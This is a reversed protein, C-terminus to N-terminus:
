PVTETVDPRIQVGLTQSEGSETDVVTIQHAGPTLGIRDMQRGRIDLAHGEAAKVFGFRVKETVEDDAVKVTVEARAYPYTGRISLKHTGSPVPCEVMPLEVRACAKVGAVSAYGRVNSEVTLAGGPQLTVEVPLQRKGPPVELEVTAPQFGPKKLTFRYSKGSEVVHEDVPTTRGALLEDNQYIQAGPPESVIRVSGVDASMALSTAVQAEGGPGPVRVSRVQDRYGPKRFTLELQEGPPLETLRLPTVGLERDGLYIRAGLPDSELYVVSEKPVLTLAVRATTGELPEILENAPNWGEKRAVIRYANGVELGDVQLTGGETAGRVKGDIEITAGDPATTILVPATPTASLRPYAVLGILALLLVISGVLGYVVARPAAGPSERREVPHKAGSPVLKSTGAALRGSADIREQFFGFRKLQVKPATLDFTVLCETAVGPLVNFAFLTTTNAIIYLGLGAGGTKRDIQQESHLCKHLYRVVTDRDITGFSDRVSMTFTDGDCAYQVVAKQEMRLSIRTRTPVDAFIAKGESDVPADYLANMLMEDACQEIAERYKRRVGMSAAFESLQAICVSKEQYDGVLASYIRTGWPVVKEAGFIDGHLLRSAMEPLAQGDLVDETLVGAIKESAQMAAVTSALDSAPLVAIVRAKDSLRRVLAALAETDDGPLHIVVLAAQIDGKGLADLSPYTEVSGGAARLGLGLRKAVGKDEAIAIVRRALV